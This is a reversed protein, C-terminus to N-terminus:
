VKFIMQRIGRAAREKMAAMGSGNATGNNIPQPM